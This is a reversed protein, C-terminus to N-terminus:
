EDNANAEELWEDLLRQVNAEAVDNHPVVVLRMKGIIGFPRGLPERAAWVAHSVAYHGGAYEIVDGRQPRDEGEIRLILIQLGDTTVVNYNSM